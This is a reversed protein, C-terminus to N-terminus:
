GTRMRLVFNSAWVVTYASLIAKVYVDLNLYGIWAAVDAPLQGFRNAMLDMVQDGLPEMVYFYLGLGALLRIAFGVINALVFARLAAQLLAFFGGSLVVPWPM